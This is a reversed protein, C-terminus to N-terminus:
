NHTRVIVSTLYCVLQSSFYMSSDDRFIHLAPALSYPTHLLSEFPINYESIQGKIEM